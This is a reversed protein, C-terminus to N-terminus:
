PVQSPSDDQVRSELFPTFTHQGLDARSAMTLVGQDAFDRFDGGIARRRRVAFLERTPEWAKDFGPAFRPSPCYM